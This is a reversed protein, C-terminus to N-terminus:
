RVRLAFIVGRVVVRIWGVVVELAEGLPGRAPVVGFVRGEVVIVWLGPGDGPMPPAPTVPSAAASSFRVGLTLISPQSPNSIYCSMAQM